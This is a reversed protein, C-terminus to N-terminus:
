RFHNRICVSLRAMDIKGIVETAGIQKLTDSMIDNSMNSHIIIKVQKYQPLSRIEKILSTGDLVPMELDTIILGVQEPPMSLLEDLLERGNQLIHANVHLKDFLDGVMRRVFKSDDAFLIAKNSEPRTKWATFADSAPETLRGFIDLLMKDCDFITCLRDQANLKIKAIFNTKSSNSQSQHMNAADVNVIYEVSKIMIGITRGGFGALIILEYQSDDLVENGFWEDFNIITTMENRIDATARIIADADKNPVLDIEKFPLLERVKSVNIGYIEGTSGEFVLYQNASKADASVLEILDLEDEDDDMFEDYDSM